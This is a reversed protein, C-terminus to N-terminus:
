IYIESVLNRLWNLEPSRKYREHWHMMVMYEPVEFPLPLTRIGLRCNRWHEALRSPVVALYDTHEIVASVGLFNPIEIGCKRDIRHDRMAQELVSHGTGNPLIIAHFEERFMDLTLKDTIRPHEERLVCVFHDLFLRQQFFGASFPPLFGIALDIEGSELLSPTRDSILSVQLMSNPAHAQFERILVPLTVIQGVDALAIRFVRRTSGADFAAEYGLLAKLKMSVESARIILEEALSTPEMGLSTRVFLADNFHKRLRALTMSISSQTVHLNEATESVSRTQHLELLLHLTKLDINDLLRTM